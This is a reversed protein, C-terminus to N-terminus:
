WSAREARAWTPGQWHGMAGCRCGSGRTVVVPGADTAVTFGNRAAHDNAPLTTDAWRIPSLFQPQDGVRRFVALGQASAIVYVRHWPGPANDPYVPLVVSAPFWRGSVVVPFTPVTPDFPDPAEVAARRTRTTTTM